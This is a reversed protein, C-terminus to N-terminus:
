YELLENGNRQGMEDLGPFDDSIRASRFKENDIERYEKEENLSYNAGALLYRACDILHDATKPIKGLKDKFYNDLEWYFKVCRDSIVVKKQVLADKILSLGYEKKHAAKHTPTMPEEFRQHFEAQFWKEAEDYVMLWETRDNLEERMSIIRDGIQAVTMKQQDSEYIEDLFYIKKDYPNYCGYLVAFVSAAAPDAALVWTLKKVDRALRKMVIEHPVIVAKSLMPFIKSVGGPVYQALYERQWIDEEKRSVLEEKKKDLWERSIHPNEHTPAHFYSKHLKFDEAVSLFQCDRDPPTGIIVLPSNHAARNPEYAEYFEPRFDKFEDFVSLGKPKVGRYSEVNDSGDLKIFSGNVLQIRMETNNISEIFQTRVFGQLRRTAWLIERSQKMYPSFYYNESGPHLLAWRWLCYSVLETKGFNRGAQVFIEKAEEKFLRDIIKRQGPHPEWTRHLENIAIVYNAVKDDM